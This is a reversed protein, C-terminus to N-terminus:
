VITARGKYNLHGSVQVCRLSHKGPSLNPAPMKWPSSMTGLDVQEPLGEDVYARVVLASNPAVPNKFKDMFKVVLDPGEKVLDMQIDTDATWFLPPYQYPPNAIQGPLPPLEQGFMPSCYALLGDMLPAGEKLHRQSNFYVPFMAHYLDRGKIEPRPFSGIGGAQLWAALDAYSKLALSDWDCGLFSWGNVAVQCTFTPKSGYQVGPVTGTAWISRGKGAITLDYAGEPPYNSPKSALLSPQVDALGQVMLIAEDPHHEAVWPYHGIPDQCNRVNGSTNYGQGWGQPFPYSKFQGDEYRWFSIKAGGDAAIVSYEDVKGWTGKRDVSVTSWPSAHNMTEMHLFNGNRDFTYISSPLAVVALNGNSYHDIWFAGSLTKWLTKTGDAAVKYIQGAGNDAVYLTGSVERLSTPKIFGSALTTIEWKSFDEFNPNNPDTFAPHRNVKLVRGNLADAVYFIKRDVESFSFDSTGRAGQIKHMTFLSGDRMAAQMWGNFTIGIYLPVHPSMSWTGDNRVRTHGHWTAYPTFRCKGRPGDIPPNDDVFGVMADWDTAHLPPYHPVPEAAIANYLGNMHGWVPLKYIETARVGNRSPSIRELADAFTTWKPVAAADIKARTTRDAAGIRFQLSTQASGILFVADDPPPDPPNGILAECEVEALRIKDLVTQPTAM